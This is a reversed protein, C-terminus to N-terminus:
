NHKTVSSTQEMKYTKTIFCFIGLVVYWHTICHAEDISVRVLHTKFTTANFVDRWTETALFSGTSGYGHSYEWNMVRKLLSDDFQESVRYSETGSQESVPGPRGDTGETQFSSFRVATHWTACVVPEM